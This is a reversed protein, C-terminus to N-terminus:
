IVAVCDLKKASAPKGPLSPVVTAWLYWGEVVVAVVIVVIVVLM